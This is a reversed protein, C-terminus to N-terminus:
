QNRHISIKSLRRRLPWCAIRLRTSIPSQLSYPYDLQRLQQKAMSSIVNADGSSLQERWRGIPASDIASFDQDFMSNGAWSKGARTPKTLSPHYDLQLFDCIHHLTDKPSQVLDEFRLVLYHDEGYRERNQLGTATSKIWNKTFFEATWDPHKRQYSLFNDRPDRVVHLCRAQPWWDYIKEIYHENYPSKEVWYKTEDNLHTTVQGFALVAASLVDGPNRAPHASLINRMEERVAAFSIDSYDRDPFDIQSAPPSDQNWTFIHILYQEALKLQKDISLNIAKPLYRRFFVSEEPYVVLQPHGDLLARLLSTGSKPHGCIFIPHDRLKPIM